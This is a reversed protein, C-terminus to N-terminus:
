SHSPAFIAEFEPRKIVDRIDVNSAKAVPKQDIFLIYTPTQKIGISQAVKIDRMVEQQAAQASRLRKGPISAFVRDLAARNPKDPQDYVKGVFNWFGQDDLQESLCAAYESDEHGALEKLPYPHYMLRVKHALRLWFRLLRPHMDQCAPCMLDAFEVITVRAKPTGLARSSGAIEAYSVKSLNISSLDPPKPKPVGFVLATVAIGLAPVLAWPIGSIARGGDPIGKSGNPTALYSITSLTMMAASGMCWLCTAHIRTVAYFTLVASVVMGMLSVMVGVFSSLRILVGRVRCAAAGILVVYAAMGIASVPIGMYYSSPDHAVRDCGSSGGCPLPTNSVHAITLVTAIALGASAFALALRNLLRYVM